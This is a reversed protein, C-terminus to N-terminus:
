QESEDKQRKGKRLITGNVQYEIERAAEDQEDFYFAVRGEHMEIKGVALREGDVEQLLLIDLFKNGGQGKNARESQVSAYLKM